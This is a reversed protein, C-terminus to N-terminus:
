NPVGSLINNNKKPHEISETDSTNKKKKLVNQTQRLGAGELQLILETSQINNKKQPHEISETASTKKKKKKQFM